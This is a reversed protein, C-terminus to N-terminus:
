PNGARYHALIREPSLAKDYIAIEDVTGILYQALELHVPTDPLNSTSDYGGRPAAVGDVYLTANGKDFTYAISVVVHTFAVPITADTEAGLNVYTGSRRAFFFAKGGFLTLNYGDAEGMTLKSILNGDSTPSVPKVWLELAFPVKGPFDFVDGLDLSSNGDLTVGRGRAGAAGFIVGKASGTVVTAVLGSIEDKATEAEPPEEFRYYAVPADALVEAAYPDVNAVSGDSAADAAADALPGADPPRADGADVAGPTGSIGDLDTTLACASGFAAGFALAGVACCVISARM